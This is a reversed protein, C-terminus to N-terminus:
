NSKKNILLRLNRPLVDYYDIMCLKELKDRTAAPLNQILGGQIILETEFETFHAGKEIDKLHNKNEPCVSQCRMCGVITHHWNKKIWVPFNGTNENFYTLCIEANTLFSSESISGTPCSKVCINCNSCSELVGAEHLETNKSPLDTIYVVPTHFSGMEPVYCLNNRGYKGLGSLVSILKEPSRYSTINFCHKSLVKELLKTTKAEANSYVYSPPIIARINSGGYRFYLETIKQPYATVIISKADPMISKYDNQFGSLYSDYIKKSFTKSQVINKYIEQIGALNNISIIAAKAGFETLNESIENFIKEQLNM